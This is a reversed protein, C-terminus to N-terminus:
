KSEDSELEQTLDEDLHKEALRRRKDQEVREPPRVPKRIRSYVGALDEKGKVDAWVLIIRWVLWL